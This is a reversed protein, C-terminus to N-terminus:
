INVRIKLIKYSNWKKRYKIYEIIFLINFKSHSIKITRWRGSRFYRNFLHIRQVSLRLEISGAIILILCIFLKFIRWIMNLWLARNGAIGRISLRIYSLFVYSLSSSFYKISFYKLCCHYWVFLFLFFYGSLSIM